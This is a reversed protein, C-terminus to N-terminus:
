KSEDELEKRIEKSLKISKVMNTKMELYTDVDLCTSMLSDFQTHLQILREHKKKSSETRSSGAILLPIAITCGVAFIWNPIIKRM